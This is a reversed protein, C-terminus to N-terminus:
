GEEIEARGATQGIRLIVFEAPRVPAIGILAVVRGADIDAQTTTEADCKVFYADEPKAGALAGDRWLTHLFAGIDRRISKWLTVDNPEFVVWRVGREVSLAIMTTLRRVPVYRFESSEEALTRAGWVRIGDSFSRICNIGAPNLIAQEEASIARTLGLAGALGANAPAKHVGREADTRAYLGAMHGSPPQAARAGSIPDRAEIWPAYIAARGKDSTPPRLGGEGKDSSQTLAEVSAFDRPADFIAFRDKRRDCDASIAAVSAPDCFGPAAILSIGAIADLPALHDPTVEDADRGLNVVHCYGGGNQFFGFVASALVNGPPPPAAADKARAAKAAALTDAAFAAVFASWSSIAVPAGPKADADPAVGLFAATSTGVASIPRAGPPTEEVYVGPALYSAM